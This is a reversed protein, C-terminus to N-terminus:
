KYKKEGYKLREEALRNKIYYYSTEFEKDKLGEIWGFLYFLGSPFVYIPYFGTTLKLCQDLMNAWQRLKKDEDEKSIRTDARTLNVVFSISKENYDISINM